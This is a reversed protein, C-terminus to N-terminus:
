RDTGVMAITLTRPIRRYIVIAARERYKARFIVTASFL